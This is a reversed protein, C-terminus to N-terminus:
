KNHVGFVLSNDMKTKKNGSQKKLKIFEDSLTFFQLCGDYHALFDYERQVTILGVKVTYWIVSATKVALQKHITGTVFHLSV